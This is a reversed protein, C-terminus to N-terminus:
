YFNMNELRSIEILIYESNGTEINFEIRRRFYKFDIESKSKWLVDPLFTHPLVKCDITDIAFQKREVDNKPWYHFICKSKNQLNREFSLQWLVHRYKSSKIETMYRFKKEEFYDLDKFVLNKNLDLKENIIFKLGELIFEFALKRQFYPELSLLYEFNLEMGLCGIKNLYDSDSFSIINFAKKRDYNKIYFEVIGSHKTRINSNEETITFGYSEFAYKICPDFHDTIESAISITIRSIKM